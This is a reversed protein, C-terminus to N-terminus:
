LISKRIFGQNVEHTQDNLTVAEYIWYATFALSLPVGTLGSIIGTSIALILNFLGRSNNGLYFQHVGLGGLFFWLVYALGVSKQSAPPMGNTEPNRIINKQWTLGLFIPKGADSAPAPQQQNFSYPNSPAAQPAQGAPASPGGFPYPQQQSQPAQPFGYPNPNQQNSQPTSPSAGYPSNQNGQAPGWQADPNGNQGQAYGAPPGYPSKNDKNGDNDDKYTDFSMDEYGKL